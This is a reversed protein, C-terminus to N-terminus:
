WQKSQCTRLVLSLSIPQTTMSTKGSTCRTILQNHLMKMIMTMGKVWFIQVAERIKSLKSLAWRSNATWISTWLKIIKSVRDIKEILRKLLLTSITWSKIMTTYITRERTEKQFYLKLIRQLSQDSFNVPKHQSNATLLTTSNRM